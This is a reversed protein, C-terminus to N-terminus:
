LVHDLLSRNSDLLGQVSAGLHERNVSASASRIKRAGVGHGARGAGIISMSAIVKKTIVQDEECDADGGDEDGASPEGIGAM